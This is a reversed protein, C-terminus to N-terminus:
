DLAGHRAAFHLHVALCRQYTSPLPRKHRQFLRLFSRCSPLDDDKREEVADRRQFLRLFSRKTPSDEAKREEVVDRRQFLRPFSRNIPTDETKREEAVDRRWRTAVARRRAAQRLYNVTEADM